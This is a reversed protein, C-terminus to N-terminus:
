VPPASGPQLVVVAIAAEGLLPGKQYLARFVLNRRGRPGVDDGVPMAPEHHRLPAAAAGPRLVAVEEPEGRPVVVRHSIRHALHDIELILRGTLQPAGRRARDSPIGKGHSM